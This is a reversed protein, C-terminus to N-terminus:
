VGLQAKIDDLNIVGKRLAELLTSAEQLRQRKQEPTLDKAFVDTIKIGGKVGTSRTQPPLTYNLDAAINRLVWQASSTGAEKAKEEIIAKFDLPVTLQIPMTKKKSKADEAPAAVAGDEAVPAAVGEVPAEAVAEVVAPAETVAPTAVTVNEQPASERAPRRTRSQALPPM